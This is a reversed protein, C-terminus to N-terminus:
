RRMEISCEAVSCLGNFPEEGPLYVVSYDRSILSHLDKRIQKREDDSAIEKSIMAHALRGREPFIYSMTELLDSSADSEVREKGRTLVKWDRRDQVWQLQHQRLAKKMLINQCSRAKSQAAKIDSSCAAEAKLQFVRDKLALLQPDQKVTADREAPLSTPLGKECFKAFSQFYEVHDHHAAEKLFARKGDVSSTNAVYKEGFIRPDMQTLHQSREVATYREINNILLAEPCRIYFQKGDVMKGLCRRIAHITANGFYGSQELVKKFIGDFTAKPLPEDTVGRSMTANRIIPLGVVSKNWRLILENEGEPIQQDDLDEM